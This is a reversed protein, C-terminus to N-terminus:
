VFTAFEDLLFSFCFFLSPYLCIGLTYFLSSFFICFAQCCYKWPMLFIGSAQPCLRPYDRLGIELCVYLKRLITDSAECLLLLCDCLQPPIIPSTLVSNAALIDDCLDGTNMIRCAFLNRVMFKLWCFAFSSSHTLVPSATYLPRAPLMLSCHEQKSMFQVSSFQSLQSLFSSHLNYTM